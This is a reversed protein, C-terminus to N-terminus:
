QRAFDIWVFLDSIQVVTCFKMYTAVCTQKVDLTINKDLKSTRSLPVIIVTM